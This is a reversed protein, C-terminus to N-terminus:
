GPWEWEITALPHIREIGQKGQIEQQIDKKYAEGCAVELQRREPDALRPYRSRVVFKQIHSPGNDFPRTLNHLFHGVTNGLEFFKNVRWEDASWNTPTDLWEM